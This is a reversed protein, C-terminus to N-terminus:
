TWFNESPVLRFIPPFDRLLVEVSDDDSANDVVIMEYKSVRSDRFLSELTRLLYTRNNYNVIIISVDPNEHKLM